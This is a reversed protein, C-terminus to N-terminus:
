RHDGDGGGAVPGLAGFVRSAPVPVGAVFGNGDQIPILMLGGPQSYALFTRNVGWLTLHFYQGPDSPPLPAGDQARERSSLVAGLAKGVAQASVPAGFSVGRWSQGRRALSMLSRVEDGVLVLFDVSELDEIIACADTGPQYAQLDARSVAHKRLFNGLVAKDVEAMSHFGMAEYNSDDVAELFKRLAPGAASPASKARDAAAPAHVPWAPADVPPLPDPCGGALLLLVLATASM